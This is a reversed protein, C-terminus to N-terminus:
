EFALKERAVEFEVVAKKYLKKAEELHEEVSMREDRQNLSSRM